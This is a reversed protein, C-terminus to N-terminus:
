NIWFSKRRTAREHRDPESKITTWVFTTNSFFFDRLSNTLSNSTAIALALMSACRVRIFPHFIFILPFSCNRIHIGIWKVDKIIVLPLKQTPARSARTHHAADAYTESASQRSENVDANLRSQYNHQALLVYQFTSPLAVSPMWSGYWNTRGERVCVVIPDPSATSIHAFATTIDRACSFAFSFDNNLLMEM